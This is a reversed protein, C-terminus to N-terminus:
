ANGFGAAAATVLEAAALVTEASMASIVSKEM